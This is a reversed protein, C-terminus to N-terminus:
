VRHLSTGQLNKLDVPTPEVTSYPTRAPDGPTKLKKSLPQDALASAIPTRNASMKTKGTWSPFLREM